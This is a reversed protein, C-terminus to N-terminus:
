SQLDYIGTYSITIAVEFWWLQTKKLDYITFGQIASRSPLWLGGFSITTAVVIWWLQTKKLNYIM